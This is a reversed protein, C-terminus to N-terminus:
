DNCRPGGDGNVVQSGGSVAQLSVSGDSAITVGVRGEGDYFFGWKQDNLTVRVGWYPRGCPYAHGIDEFILLGKGLINIALNGRVMLSRDVNDSQGPPYPLGLTVPQTTNNVITAISWNASASTAALAFVSMLGTGMLVRFLM